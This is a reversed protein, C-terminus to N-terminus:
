KFIIAQITGVLAAVTIVIGVMLTLKDKSLKVAYKASITTGISSFIIAVLIYPWLFAFDVFGMFLIACIIMLLFMLFCGTGTAKALDYGPIFIMLLLVFNTGNGIGVAGGLGGSVFMGAIVILITLSKAMTKKQSPPNESTPSLDTTQVKSKKIGKYGKLIFFFGLILLIYGISGRLFEPNNTLFSESIFYFSLLAGILTPISWIWGDKFNVRKNKAYIITLILSDVLDILISIFLANYIEFNFGVFVLPVVINWATFSISATAVGILLAMPIFILVFVWFEVM